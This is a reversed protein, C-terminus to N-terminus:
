KLTAYSYGRINVEANFFLLAIRIWLDQRRFMYICTQPSLLAASLTGCCTLSLALVLWLGRNRGALM